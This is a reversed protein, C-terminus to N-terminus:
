RHTVVCATDGSCALIEGVFWLFYPPTAAAFFMVLLTPLLIKRLMSLTSAFRVMTKVNHQEASVEEATVFNQHNM